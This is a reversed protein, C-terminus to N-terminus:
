KKQLIQREFIKITSEHIRKRGGEDEVDILVLIAKREDRRTGRRGPGDKTTGGRGEEDRRPEKARGMGERARTAGRRAGGREM